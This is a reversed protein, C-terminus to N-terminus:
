KEIKEQYPFPHRNLLFSKTIDIAEEKREGRYIDHTTNKLVVLMKVKSQINEYVYDVSGQPVIKDEMGYLILTPVTISKPTDFNEKVLNMFEVTIPLPVKVIRTIIDSNDYDKLIKPIEKISDILKFKDEKFVLYRFAPSALVLKKVEKYKNALYCAIVGGMSHGVVYIKKYGNKILMLLHEESSKIWAERDVGTLMIKDHGPLTFSFVDFSSCLQLQNALVEMDYTGSAFGHIILVAKKLRM